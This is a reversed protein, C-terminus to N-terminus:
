AASWAAVFFLFSGFVMMTAWGLVLTRLVSGFWSLRYAGRLHTVAHVLLALTVAVPWAGPWLANLIIATTITLAMFSLGYLAVVGHDYFTYGRKFLLLVALIVMTIPALLPALKYTTTEAKYAYLKPNERIHTLATCVTKTMGQLERDTCNTEEGFVTVTPSSETSAAQGTPATQGSQAAPISDDRAMAEFAANFLAGGSLSLALFFLFISFLFIHLPAVYRVRKGEIWARSLRGPRFALMPLTRWLRGDFHMVGEIFDEAMHWIRTHLHGKQGCQHCYPGTLHTGCNACDHRADAREIRRHPDGALVEAAAATGAMETM